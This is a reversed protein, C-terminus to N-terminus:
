RPPRADLLKGEPSLTVFAKEPLHQGDVDQARSLYGTKLAGSPHLEVTGVVWIGSFQQAETYVRNWTGPIECKALEGTPYLEIRDQPCTVSGITVSASHGWTHGNWVSPWSVFRIEGSPYFRVQSGSAAQFRGVAHPARYDAGAVGGTGPRYWTLTTGVPFTYAGQVLPEDITGTRLRNPRGPQDFGLTDECWLVYASEAKLAIGEIRQRTGLELVLTFMSQADDYDFSVYTGRALPVGCPAGDGGLEAAALRGPNRESGHLTVLTAAPFDIGQVSESRRLTRTFLPTGKAIALTSVLCVALGM